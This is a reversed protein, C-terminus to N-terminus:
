VIYESQDRGNFNRRMKVDCMFMFKFLATNISVNVKSKYVHRSRYFATWLLIKILVM